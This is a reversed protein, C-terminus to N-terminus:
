MPTYLWMCQFRPMATYTQRDRQCERLYNSAPRNRKLEAFM